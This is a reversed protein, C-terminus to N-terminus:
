DFGQRNASDVTRASYVGLACGVYMKISSPFAIPRTRGDTQKWEIAKLDVSRQGLNKAHIHAM